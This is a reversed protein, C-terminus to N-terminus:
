PPKAFGVRGYDGGEQNGGTFLSNRIHSQDTPFRNYAPDTMISFFYTDLNSILENLYISLNDLRNPIEIYINNEPSLPYSRIFSLLYLLKYFFIIM